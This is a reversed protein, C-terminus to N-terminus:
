CHRKPRPHQGPDMSSPLTGVELKTELGIFRALTRSLGEALSGAM